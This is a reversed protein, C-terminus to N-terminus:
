RSTPVCQAEAEGEDWDKMVTEKELELLEIIITCWNRRSTPVCQAEAEGEDWGRDLREEDVCEKRKSDIVL